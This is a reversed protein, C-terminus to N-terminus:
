EPLYIKMGALQGVVEAYSEILGRQAAGKLVDTTYFLTFGIEKAENRAKRDDMIIAQAQVELALRLVGVEGLGLRRTFENEVIPEVVSITHEDIARLISIRQLPFTSEVVAEQYVADPIIITGFLAKLIDLRNLRGLVILPSTDAVIM